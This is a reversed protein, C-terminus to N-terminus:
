RETKLTSTVCHIIAMNDFPHLGPLESNCLEKFQMVRMRALERPPTIKRQDLFIRNSIHM